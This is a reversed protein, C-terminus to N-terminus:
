FFLLAELSVILPVLFFCEYGWQTRIYNQEKETFHTDQLCYIALKKQKLFNLVDKRKEKGGLGQCNVSLLSIEESM